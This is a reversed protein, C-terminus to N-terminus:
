KKLYSVTIKDGNTKFSSYVYLILGCKYRTPGDVAISFRMGLQIVAIENPAVEMKGFETSIKLVGQQPVSSFYLNLKGLKTILRENLKRQTIIFSISLWMGFKFEGVSKRQFNIEYLRVSLYTEM